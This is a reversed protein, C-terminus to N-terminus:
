HASREKKKQVYVRIVVSSRGMFSTREKEREKENKGKRHCQEGGKRKSRVVKDKYCKYNNIIIIEEESGSAFM